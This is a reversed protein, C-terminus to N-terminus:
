LEPLGRRNLEERLELVREIANSVANNAENWRQKAADWEAKLADMRSEYDRQTGDLSDMYAMLRKFADDSMQDLHNRKAILKNAEERTKELTYRLQVDSMGTAPLEPPPSSTPVLSALSPLM